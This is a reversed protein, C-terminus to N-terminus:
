KKLSLIYLVMLKADSKKLDPHPTMPSDGWVGGGGDIIKDTLSRLNKENASYKGAISLFSPGIIKKSQHHCNRCDSKDVLKAGESIGSRQFLNILVVSFALVLGVKKM